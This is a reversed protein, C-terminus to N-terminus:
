SNRCIFSYWNYMLIGFAVSVNLSRKAGSLPISVCGNKRRVLNLADPSLGLEESGVLVIGSVPFQFEAIPTGNTELGFINTESEINELSSTSWEIIKNTGRATREARKTTPLPTAASIYIRSIGFSDATRFISGVNFPSRIDELFVSIPFTTRKSDDLKGTATEIFDWESPEAGLEDLIAYRLNNIHRRMNSASKIGSLHDIQQSITEGLQLRLDRLIDILKETDTNTGNTLEIETNQLMLALKRLMTKHPLRILKSATFM